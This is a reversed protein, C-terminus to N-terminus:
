HLGRLVLRVGLKVLIALNPMPHISLNPAVM